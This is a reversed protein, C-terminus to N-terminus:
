PRGRRRAKRWRALVVGLSGLGYLLLASPEPAVSAGNGGGLNGPTVTVLAGIAGPNTSGPLGPPEYYYLTVSYTNDGINMASPNAGFTNSLVESGTSVTGSFTGSLTIPTTAGSTEDTLNLTLTWPKSTFSDLASSTSATTLEALKIESTYSGTTPTNPSGTLGFLGLGNLQVSSSGSDSWITASTSTNIGSGFTVSYDWAPGLTDARAPLSLALGLVTALAVCLLPRKM